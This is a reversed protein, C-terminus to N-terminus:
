GFDRRLELRAAEEQQRRKGVAYIVVGSGITLATLVVLKVFAFMPLPEDAPPVFSLVVAMATTVFGVSSLLYAVPRGGPVRRVDPGAPERQLRFMAAFLFLFPILFTIVTMSVLIDYAGRVSTGAQGLLVCVIAIRAETLLAVHPTRWRPHVKAFSKPLYHDIGAVFPIRATSGLWASVSGLVSIAILLAAIPGIAPMGLRDGASLVAATIGQLATTESAPLAVLVSVTGLIYILSVLPLAILIARPVNRRPERLEDGMFSAAEFGTLAFAITSWFILDQVRAGPRITTWTFRSASGFRYWALLGVAILLAAVIWRAVGGVNTLWKGVDLGVLNLWAAFGLGVVAAAIFYVPENSLGRMREGGVFLLNGAAFYLVGPFYPLNSTWYTWGTMFASFDGFARKTWLYVGGEGPHRSALEIVCLGLPVAMAVFGALWFTVAAPGAAAATAVWQLNVCATVFFLVVDRFGMARRLAPADVSPPRAAFM